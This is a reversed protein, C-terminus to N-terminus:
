HPESGTRHFQGFIFLKSEMSLASFDHIATLGNVPSMHHESWLIQEDNLEEVSAGFQQGSIALVRNQYEVLQGNVHEHETETKTFQLM